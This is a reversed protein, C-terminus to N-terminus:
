FIGEQSTWPTGEKNDHTKCVVKSPAGIDKPTQRSLRYHSPLSATKWRFATSIPPNKARLDGMEDFFLPLRASHAMAPKWNATPNNWPPKAAIRTGCQCRNCSAARLPNPSNLMHWPLLAAYLPLITLFRQRIRGTKCCALTACSAQSKSRWCACRATRSGYTQHICTPM